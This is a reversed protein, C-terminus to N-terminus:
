KHHSLSPVDFIPAAFGAPSVPSPPCLLTRHLFELTLLRHITATHNHTRALHERVITEVAGRQLYGRSHAAPDLLVERVVPALERSYWVRFHYFKHRGLFLREPRLPSLLADLRTLANPMGYDFAYEAKVTLENWIRGPHLRSKRLFSTGRDTPVGALDPMVEAVLALFFEPASTEASEQPRRFALQVLDNDLFPSRMVLASSEVALRAHHYWPLQCSVVFATEGLSRLERYTRISNATAAVVTESFVRSSPVDPRFAVLGRMIEGGYNGTVRIPSIARARECMYLDVAGNVEMTGDSIRVTREALSSFRQLFDSEVKLVSHDLHCSRALKNAIRADLNERYPGSFTYCSPTAGAIAAHALTLRSDVGGTLSLGVPLSSRFYSPMVHRFVETCQRAYSTGRLPPLEQWEKLQFYSKRDVHSTSSFTWASAPPLQTIGSFLTRGELVCGCSLFDALGQNELHRTAPLAALLAKAESAFYCVPGAWAIYIRTLGYRDNFLVTRGARRDVIIGAFTGNLSRLASAGDAAFHRLLEGAVTLGDKNHCHHEGCLLLMLDREENWFPVPGPTAGGLVWAVSLGAEQMRLAGRDEGAPATLAAAMRGLLLPLEPDRHGGLIGTFGPM